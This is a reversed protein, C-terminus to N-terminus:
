KDNYISEMTKRNLEALLSDYTHEKYEHLLMRAVQENAQIQRAAQISKGVSIFFAKLQTWVINLLNQSYNLAITTM